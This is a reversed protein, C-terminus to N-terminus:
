LHAAVWAFEHIVAPLLFGHYVAHGYITTVDLILSFSPLIPPQPFNNPTM